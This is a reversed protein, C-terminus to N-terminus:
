QVTNTPAQHVCELQDQWEVVSHVRCNPGPSTQKFCETDGGATEGVLSEYGQHTRRSEHSCIEM